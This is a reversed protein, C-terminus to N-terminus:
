LIEYMPALAVIQYVESWCRGMLLSPYLTIIETGLSSLWMTGNVGTIFLVVRQIIEYRGLWYCM